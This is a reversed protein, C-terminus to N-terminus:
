TRRQLQSIAWQQTFNRNRLVPRHLADETQVTRAIETWAPKPACLELVKLHRPALRGEKLAMREGSSIHYHGGLLRINERVWFTWRRWRCLTLQGQLGGQPHLLGGWHIRWTTSDLIEIM